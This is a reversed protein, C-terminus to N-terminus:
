AEPHHNRRCNAQWSASYVPRLRGYLGGKQRLLAHQRATVAVITKLEMQALAHVTKVKFTVKENETVLCSMASYFVYAQFM